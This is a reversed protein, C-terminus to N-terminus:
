VMRKQFFLKLKLLSKRKSYEITGKDNKEYFIRSYVDHAKIKGEGLTILLKELSDVEYFEILKDQEISPLDEILGKNYKDFEFQLLTKGIIVKGFTPAHVLEYQIRKRAFFTIVLDIWEVKTQLSDAYEADVIDGEVLKKGFPAIEKNIFVQSVFGAKDPNYSYLFDLATAGEPMDYIQGNRDFVFIRETLFDQKLYTDMQEPTSKKDQAYLALDELWKLRIPLKQIHSYSFTNKDGKWYATIGVKARQAMETTMIEVAFTRGVNDIIKIHIGQYGNDRPSTIYEKFSGPKAQFEKHLWFLVHYCDAIDSTVIRLSHTEDFGIKANTKIDISEDLLPTIPHIELHVDSFSEQYKHIDKEINKALPRLIDMNKRQASLFNKYSEEYLIEYCYIILQDKLEQFNLKHALPVFINLTEKAIREKKEQRLADFTSANHLRDCLKILICRIDKSMIEFMKRMSQFKREAKADRFKEKSLKTVGDVLLEVDKGFRKRIDEFTVDTDEVTDHLLAAIITDEDAQYSTLIYAVSLCHIFYPEGSSRKQNRHAHKGFEYAELVRKKNIKCYQSAKAIIKQILKEM